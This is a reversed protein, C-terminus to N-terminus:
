SGRAYMHRLAVHTSISRSMGTFFSLRKGCCTSPMDVECIAPRIQLTRKHGPPTSNVERDIVLKEMSKVLVEM